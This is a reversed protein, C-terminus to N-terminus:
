VLRRSCCYRRMLAQTRLRRAAQQNFVSLSPQAHLTAPTSFLPADDHRRGRVAVCLYAPAVPAHASAQAHGHARGSAKIHERTWSDGSRMGPTWSIMHKPRHLLFAAPSPAASIRSLAEQQTTPKEQACCWSLSFSMAFPVSTLQRSSIERKRTSIRREVHAHLDSSPLGSGVQGATKLDTKRRTGHAEQVADSDHLAHNRGRGHNRRWPACWPSAWRM